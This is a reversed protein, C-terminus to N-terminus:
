LKKNLPKFLHNLRSTQTLNILTAETLPFFSFFFPVCVIWILWSFINILFLNILSHMNKMWKQSCLFWAQKMVQSLLGHYNPKVMIIVNNFDYQAQGSHIHNRPVISSQQTRGRTLNDNVPARHYWTCTCPTMLGLCLAPVVFFHPCQNALYM